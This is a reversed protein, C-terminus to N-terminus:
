IGKSLFLAGLIILILGSSLTLVGFKGVRFKATIGIGLFVFGLGILLLIM